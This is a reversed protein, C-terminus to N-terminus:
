LEVMKVAKIVTDATVDSVPLIGGGDSVNFGFVRKSDFDSCKYCYVLTPEKEQPSYLNYYGDPLENLDM